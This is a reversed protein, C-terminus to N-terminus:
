TVLKENRRLKVAIVPNFVIVKAQRKPRKAGEAYGAKCIIYPINMAGSILKPVREVKM